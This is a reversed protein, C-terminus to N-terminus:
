INKQEFQKEKILILAIETPISGVHIWNSKRHTLLELLYSIM